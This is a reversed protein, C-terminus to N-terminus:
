KLANVVAARVGASLANTDGLFRVENITGNNITLTAAVTANLTATPTLLLVSASKGQLVGGALADPFNQGTAIALQNWHLSAHLVGHNAVAVATDYRNAGSLRQTTCPVKAAIGNKAADSVAKADGLVLAKTTGAAKLASVLTADAGTAPNM